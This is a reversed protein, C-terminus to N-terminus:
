RKKIWNVPGGHREGITCDADPDWKGTLKRDDDSLKLTM